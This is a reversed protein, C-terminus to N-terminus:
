AHTSANLLRSIAASAAKKLSLVGRVILHWFLRHGPAFRDPAHKLIRERQSIHDANWFVDEFITLPSDEFPAIRKTHAAASEEVNDVTLDHEL